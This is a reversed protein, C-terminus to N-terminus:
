FARKPTKVDNSIAQEVQSKMNELLNTINEVQEKCAKKRKTKNLGAFLSKNMQHTSNKQLSQNSLNWAKDKIKDFETEIIESQMRVAEIMFATLKKVKDLNVIGDCTETQMIYTEYFNAVNQVLNASESQGNFNLVIVDDEDRGFGEFSLFDESFTLTYYYDGIKNSYINNIIQFDPFDMEETQNEYKYSFIGVIKGDREIFKLPGEIVSNDPLIFQASYTENVNLEEAYTTQSISLVFCVFLMFLKIKLKIMIKEKLRLNM